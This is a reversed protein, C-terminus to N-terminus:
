APEQPRRVIGRLTDVGWPRDLLGALRAEFMRLTDRGDIFMRHLAELPRDPDNRGPGTTVAAAYGAERVLRMERAGHLGAPYAFTTVSRGLREELDRKSGAIEDWAADDSLTPLAPHTRTHAGIDFLPERDIAAIEEWSLLPPRAGPAYWYLPADGSILATPAFITAPIVLERLVPLAHELNDQYGDDFTVCILRETSRQGLAEVAEVLSVPRAGSRLVADMQRRFTRPAVALDDRGKCVRHYALIRVGAAEAPKGRSRRWALNAQLRHALGKALYYAHGRQPPVQSETTSPATM